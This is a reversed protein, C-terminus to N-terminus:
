IASSATVAGGRAGQWDPLAQLATTVVLHGPWSMLPFHPYGSAIVKEAECFMSPPSSFVNEKASLIKKGNLCFAFPVEKVQKGQSLGIVMGALINM